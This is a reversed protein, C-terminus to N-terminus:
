LDKEYDLIAEIHAKAIRKQFESDIMLNADEFNDFFLNESLVAPMSTKKLVTFDHPNGDHWYNRTPTEQRYQIEPCEKKFYDGILTALNRSNNSGKKHVFISWGRAKGGGANGHISVYITSVGENKMEANYANAKNVRDTLSNDLYEHSVELVRFGLKQLGIKIRYGLNRNFVGEYFKGNDHFNGKKHDFMKSPATTYQKTEPNIGGHGFDLIVAVKRPKTEPPEPKNQELTSLFELRNQLQAIQKNIFEIETM